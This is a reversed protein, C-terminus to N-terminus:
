RETVAAKRNRVTRMKSFRRQPYAHVFLQRGLFRPSRCARGKNGGHEEHKDKHVHDDIRQGRPIGPVEIGLLLVLVRDTIRCIGHETGGGLALGDAHDETHRLILHLRVNHVCEDEVGETLKGLAVIKDLDFEDIDIQVGLRDRGEAGARGLRAFRHFRGDALLAHDEYRTLICAFEAHLKQLGEENQVPLLGNGGIVALLDGDGRNGPHKRVAM